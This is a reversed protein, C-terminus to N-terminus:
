LLSGWINCSKRIPIKELVKITGTAKQVKEIEAIYKKLDPLRFQVCYELDFQVMSKYLPMTINTDRNETANIIIGLINNANKCHICLTLVKVSSNVM